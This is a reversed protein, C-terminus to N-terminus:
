DAAYPQEEGVGWYAAHAPGGAPKRGTRLRARLGFNGGAVAVVANLFTMTFVYSADIIIGCILKSFNIFIAMLILQVMSKKWEYQDLGLITGFAIVLLAVVFFMNALDRVMVWGLNVIQADMYGNYGALQIFWKLFFIAIAIFANAVYMNINAILAVLPSAIDSFAAHTIGPVFLFAFICFLGVRRLTQSAKKQLIASFFSKVARLSSFIASVITFKM